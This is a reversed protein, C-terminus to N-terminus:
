SATAGAAPAPERLQFLNGEPDCANTMVFGSDPWRPGSVDGGHAAATIAAAALSDVSVFFKLACDERPVPPRSIVIDAAIAPPIAHLVLQLDPSQLVALTADEHIVTMALLARYFATMAPLDKAYIFVGARAPGSM